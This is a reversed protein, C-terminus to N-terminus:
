HCVVKVDLTEAPEEVASPGESDDNSDTSPTSCPQPIAPPASAQPIAPPAAAVHFVNAGAVTAPMLVEMKHFLPWGNNHFPKAEPHKLVYDDWSSATHINITAGTEDDWTWGL